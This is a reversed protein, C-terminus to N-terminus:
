RVSRELAAVAHPIDPTAVAGFGVVLGPQPETFQYTRRLSSLLLGSEAARAVVHDDDPMDPLRLPLHLGVQTTRSAVRPDLRALARSLLRHREGYVKRARRCHRALYGHEIFLALTETTLTSPSADISQRVARLAPVLSTPAVVFGIRLAPSLIKSFSGVYAVRGDRDLLHLPELPRPSYRFESDYDDEVIAAAHRGAWRLLALRRERSMVVGLPFQHSPTVHVLRATPPLADVVLGHDDVPVGVVRVGLTRLLEAVPPYGPEEVAAVDGPRLLVRAVLDVAHTAGHTVVIQDSTSAVGRSRGIWQALAERIEPSGEPAGYSSFAGDLEALAQNSCRRWDAVPFLRGDVRGATLDYRARPTEVGYRRVAAAVPTATLAAPARGRRPRPVADGLVFSGGGRRGQVYGEATLRGYADTVTSRAIALREAVARTSELRAGRPLRGEVIAARLQDYLQTALSRRDAGDLFLEV